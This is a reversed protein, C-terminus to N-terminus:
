LCGMFEFGDAFIRGEVPALIELLSDIQVTASGDNVSLNIQVIGAPGPATGDVMCELTGAAASCTQTLTAPLGSQVPQADRQYSFTASLADGDSDNALFVVSGITTDATRTQAACSVSGTPATNEPCTCTAWALGRADPPPNPAISLFPQEQLRQLPDNAFWRGSLEHIRQRLLLKDRAGLQECQKSDPLFLLLSDAQLQPTACAQRILRTSIFRGPQIQFFPRLEREALSRAPVLVIVQAKADVVPYPAAHVLRPVWLSLTISLVLFLRMPGWACMSM